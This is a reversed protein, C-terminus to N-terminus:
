NRRHSPRWLALVGASVFLLLNIIGFRTERALWEFFEPSQQNREAAIAAWRTAQHIAPLLFLYSNAVILAMCVMKGCLWAPPKVGYCLAAMLIGTVIMLALGPMVICHSTLSVLTRANALFPLGHVLAYQDIAINAAIPGLFLASGVLHLGRLALLLHHQRPTSNTQM